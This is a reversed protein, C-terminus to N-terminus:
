SKLFEKIASVIIQSEKIGRSKCKESFKKKLPEPVNASVRIYNYLYEKGNYIVKM